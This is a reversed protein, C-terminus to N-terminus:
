FEVDQQYGDVRGFWGGSPANIEDLWLSRKFHGADGVLPQWQAVEERGWADRRWLESSIRAHMALGMGVGRVPHHFVCITQALLVFCLNEGLSRPGPIRPDRQRTALISLASIAVSYPPPRRDERRQSPRQRLITQSQAQDQFAKRWTRFSAATNHPFFKKWTDINSPQNTLHQRGSQQPLSQTTYDPLPEDCPM